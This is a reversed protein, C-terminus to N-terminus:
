HHGLWRASLSWSPPITCSYKIQHVSFDEADMGRVGAGPYTSKILNKIFNINLLSLSSEHLISSNWPTQRLCLHLIQIEASALTYINPLLYTTNLYTTNLLLLFCPGIARNRGGAMRMWNHTSWTGQAISVWWAAEWVEDIRLLAAM